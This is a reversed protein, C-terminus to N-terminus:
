DYDIIYNLTGNAKGVEVTQVNKHAYGASVSLRYLEGGPQSNIWDMALASGKSFPLLAGKGDKLAIEVGKAGGADLNLRGPGDSSGEFYVRVPIKTGAPLGSCLVDLNFQKQQKGIEAISVKGLPITLQEVGACGSFYSRTELNTSGGVKIQAANWGNIDQEITFNMSAMGQGVDRATRIFELQVAKIVNTYTNNGNPFPDIMPLNGITGSANSKFRVGVGPIGTKYVDTFGDALEADSVYYEGRYNQVAPFPCKIQWIESHITAIPSNAMVGGIPVSQLNLQSPATMTFYRKQDGIGGTHWYCGDPNAAEALNLGLAACTAALTLLKLKM